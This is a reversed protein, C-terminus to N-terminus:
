KPLQYFNNDVNVNYHTEKDIINVEYSKSLFINFSQKFAKANELRNLIQKTPVIKGSIPSNLSKPWKSKSNSEIIIPNAEKNNFTLSIQEEDNTLIYKKELSNISVNESLNFRQDWIVEEDSHGNDFGLVINEKPLYYLTRRLFSGDIANNYGSVMTYLDTDVYKDTYIYHETRNQKLNVTYTTSKKNNTFVSHAQKKVVYKRFKSKSYNFKGADVFFDKTNSNLIFSLNDSHKHTLTSFGCIFALYFKNKKNKIVTIGASQDNFSDWSLEINQDAFSHSSDGIPPFRRDPKLIVSMYKEILVFRNIIEKGLSRNNKNLYDELDKYLFYVMRHYEPSNELHVGKDSYTLWFISKAREFGKMYYIENNTVLGIEILAKDMMLGHNNIGHKTDDFLLEAHKILMNIYRAIDLKINTEKCLYIFELITQTRSGLSHDYWTLNTQNGGDVYDFWSEIIEKGKFIYEIKPDIRYQNLLESVLRLNQLYMQFSQPSTDHKYEWDFSETFKVTGMNPFPMLINELALDAIKKTHKTTKLLPFVTKENLNLEM